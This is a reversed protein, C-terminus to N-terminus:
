NRLEPVSHDRRNSGCELRLIRRTSFTNPHYLIQRSSFIDFGKAVSRAKYRSIKGDIGYKLKYVWKGCIIKHNKPADVLDWTHNDELSKVEDDMAKKWLHSESFRPAKQYSLPERIVGQAVISMAIHQAVIGYRKPAHRERTSRRPPTEPDSDPPSSIESEGEEHDPEQPTEKQTSGEVLTNSSLPSPVSYASIDVPSMDPFYFPTGDRRHAQLSDDNEGFEVFELDRIIEIKRTDPFYIRYINTTTYGVFYGERGGVPGVKRSKVRKEAPINVYVRCGFTRLHTIDQIYDDQSSNYARLWVSLPCDFQLFTSPSRNLLYVGTLFAEPWFSENIEPEADLLLCRAKGAILGNTREAIGNM